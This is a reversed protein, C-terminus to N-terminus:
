ILCIIINMMYVFKEPILISIKQLIKPSGNFCYIEIEYDKENVEDRLLPEILIQPEINKYQLEFGAFPFFSQVMWGNFRSRVIEKLIKKELFVDKNKIIFQWKCGNNAKIIFRNPLEDFPIDDFNKGIWLVPKLYEDGIKKKIWDRVLVKDTLQTKLLTSDYLKLWQIKENFSKPNKLNLNEKTIKKYIKKLYKPYDKEDLRIIEDYSYPPDGINKFINLKSLLDSVM